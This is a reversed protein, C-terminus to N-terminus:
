PAQEPPLPAHDVLDVRATELVCCPVFDAVQLADDVHEVIQVVTRRFEVRAAGFRGQADIGDPQAGEIGRRHGIKAVVHGVITVGIGQKAVQRRKVPQHGLRVFAGDLDDDVIHGIVARILV